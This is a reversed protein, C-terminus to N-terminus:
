KLYDNVNDATIIKFPVFVDEEKTADAGDRLRICLDVFAKAQGEADQFVTMDMEEKVISELAEDQGDLGVWITDEMRDAGKAAEIAGIVQLDAVGVVCDIKDYAQLWNEMVSVGQDMAGGTYETAVIKIDTRGKDALAAEMGEQRDISQLDAAQGSLYWIGANEPANEALWEGQIYGGDYNKSGLYIYKEYGNGEDALSLLTSIIPIDAEKCMDAIPLCSNVDMWCGAAIDIGQLMMSEATTIQKAADLDSQTVIVNLGAEKAYQEIYNAFKLCYPAASGGMDFWVTFDDQVNLDDEQSTVKESAKKEASDTNSSACGLLTGSIVTVLLLSIIRKKM